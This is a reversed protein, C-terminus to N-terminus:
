EKYNMVDTIAATNRRMKEKDAGSEVKKDVPLSQTGTPSNAGKRMDRQLNIRPNSKAVM